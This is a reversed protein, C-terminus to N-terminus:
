QNNNSEPFVRKLWSILASINPNKKDFLGQYYAYGATTGPYAQWSLWTSLHAKPKRKTSFLKNDGLNEITTHAIDKLAVQTDSTIGQLLFDEFIGDSGHDPMIWLGIPPLEPHKFLEGQNLEPNESITYRNDTNIITSTIQKRREQFGFENSDADVIIGLHKISGTRLANIRSPLVNLLTNFGNRYITPESKPPEISFQRESLGLEKKLLTSFFKKDDEGEVLLTREQKM